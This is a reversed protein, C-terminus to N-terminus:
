RASPPRRLIGVELLTPSTLRGKLASCRARSCSRWKARTSSEFTTKGLDTGMSKIQM